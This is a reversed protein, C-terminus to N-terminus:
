GTRREGLRPETGAFLRRLNARHRLLVLAASAGALLLTTPSVPPSWGRGAVLAVLGPVSAAAVISALSVYRTAALVTVFLALATAGALPFLAVFAGFGTAVGRGGRFGFWVPFVHGGIAALGAGTAVETSTGLMQALRVPAIGKAIDLLLVLLAAWHGSTRLVNTAGPNGSGRTRLDVRDRLRVVLLGFSISGLLYSGALLVADGAM